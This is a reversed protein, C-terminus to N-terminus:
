VESSLLFPFIRFQSCILVALRSWRGICSLPFPISGASLPHSLHFDLDIHVCFSRAQLQSSVWPLQLIGFLWSAQYPTVSDPLHHHGCGMGSLSGSGQLAWPGAPRTFCEGWARYPLVVAVPHQVAQMGLQTALLLCASHQPWRGTDAASSLWFESTRWDCKRVLCKGDTCWRVLRQNQLFM